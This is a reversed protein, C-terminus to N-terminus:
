GKAPPAAARARFESRLKSSAYAIWFIPIGVVFPLGFMCFPACVMPLLLVLCITKTTAATENKATLGFWMGANAVAFTQLAYYGAYIMSAAIFYSVAAAADRQTLATLCTALWELGLATLIPPLFAYRLAMRQGQLFQETTLPTTLFLEMAGNRRAESICRPAEAAIRMLLLLNVLWSGVFYVPFYIRGPPASGNLLVMVAIALFLLAWLWVTRFSNRGALWFIPNIELRRRRIEANRARQEPTRERIVLRRIGGAGQEQWCHPVWLSAAVLAAWGMLSVIGLSQWYGPLALWRWGGIKLKGGALAEELLTLPSFLNVFQSPIFRPVFMIILLLLTTINSATRKEKCGCSVLLGVSLTFFLIDILVLVVRWFERGTVGGMLIPLALIPLIAVLGYFSELSTAALKGLVIDYGRLDTLFLLGLTGERKEESVCDSTKRLAEVHCFAFAVYSLIIFVPTGGMGFGRMGRASGFTMLVAAFCFAVGAALARNRYTSKLRAATRLERVVIPLFTM